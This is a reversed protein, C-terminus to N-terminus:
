GQDTVPQDPHRITLVPVPSTRVIQEAVSGLFLHRLGTRGHTGMVIADIPHDRVYERIEEVPGGSRVAITAQVGQAALRAVVPALEAEATEAFFRRKMIPTTTGPRVIMETEPGYNHMLEVVHLLVLHAGHLQAEECAIAVAHEASASFDYPVLITKWGM